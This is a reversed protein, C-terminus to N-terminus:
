FTFIYKGRMDSSIHNSFIRDAEDKKTRIGPNSGGGIHLTTRDDIYDLAARFNYFKFVEWAKFCETDFEVQTWEKAAEKARVYFYFDLVKRDTWPSEARPARYILKTKSGTGCNETTSYHPYAEIYSDYFETMYKRLVDADYWHTKYYYTDFMQQLTSFGKGALREKMAPSELDAIFRWPANKDIMFGYSNALRNIILFYDDLIYKQYKIKDNDHMDTSIEFVIGSISPNVSRKLQLNTRTIPTKPLLLNLFHIFQTSFNEFSNVKKAIKPKNLYKVVFPEYMASIIGHHTATFSTWGKKCEFNYYASQTSIQGSLKMRELKRLMDNLAEAVFNVLFIDKTGDVLKLVKESPYISRNNTDIRGYFIKDNNFDHRPFPPFVSQSEGIYKSTDDVVGDDDLVNQSKSGEPVAFRNYYKRRYFLKKSRDQNSGLPIIEDNFPQSAFPEHEYSEVMKKAIEDIEADSMVTKNDLSRPRKNLKRSLRDLVGYRKKNIIGM